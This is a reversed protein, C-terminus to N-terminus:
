LEIQGIDNQEGFQVGIHIVNCENQPGTKHMGHLM